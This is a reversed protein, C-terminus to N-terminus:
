RAGKYGSESINCREMVTKESARFKDPANGSLFLMVKYMAFDKSGLCCAFAAELEHTRHAFGWGRPDRDKVGKHRIM